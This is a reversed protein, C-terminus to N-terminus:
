KVEIQRPKSAIFSYTILGALGILLIPTVSSLVPKIVSTTVGTTIEKMKETLAETATIDHSIATGKLVEVPIAKAKVADYLADLFIKIENENKNITHDKIYSIINNDPNNKDWFSFGNELAGSYASYLDNVYKYKDLTFFWLFPLRSQLYNIMTYQWTNTPIEFLGLYEINM